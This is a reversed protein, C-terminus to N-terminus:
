DIHRGFEGIMQEICPRFSKYAKVRDMFSVKDWYKIISAMLSDISNHINTSIM